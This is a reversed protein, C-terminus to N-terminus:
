TVFCAMEEVSGSRDKLVSWIDLVGRGVKCFM